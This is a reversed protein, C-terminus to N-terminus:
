FTAEVIEQTNVNILGKGNLRLVPIVPLSVFALTMFPDIDGSVGLSKAAAKLERLKRDVEEIPLDSMLGAIPLALSAKVEGHEVVVLGGNMKRVAEAAAAIDEDSAGIVILNHSDHAVSTAIAGRTLGYGTIFGIGIHGTNHHREFVAAKLIDSEIDYGGNERRQDTSELIVEDTLLEHKKLRIIRMFHKIEPIRLAEATVKDMHFSETIKPNDPLAVPSDFLPKGDEAVLEGGIYVEEV